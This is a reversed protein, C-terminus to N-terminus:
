QEGSNLREMMTEFYVEMVFFILFNRRCQIILSQINEPEVDTWIGEGNRTTRTSSSGGQPRANAKSRSAFDGANLKLAYEEFQIKSTEQERNNNLNTVLKSLCHSIRVSPHSNDTNVSKNGIEM